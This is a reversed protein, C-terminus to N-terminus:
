VSPRYDPVLCGCRPLGQNSFPILEVSWEKFLAQAVRDIATVRDRVEKSRAACRKLEDNLRESTDKLESPRVKTVALFRKLASAFQPKAAQQAGRAAEEPGHSRRAPPKQQRMGDRARFSARRVPRFFKLVRDGPVLEQSEIISTQGPFHLRM